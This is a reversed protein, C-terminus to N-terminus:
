GATHGEVPHVDPAPVAMRGEAVWQLFRLSEAPWIRNVPDSRRKGTRIIRQFLLLVGVLGLAEVAFLVLKGADVM